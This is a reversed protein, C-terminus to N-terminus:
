FGVGLFLVKDTDCNSLVNSLTDLFVMRELANVPVYVCIFIFSYKEFQADVKLLRGKIVEDVQYSVPVFSKSFLIAVGSSTSNLHSLISLGDFEKCWDSSNLADSHTEQICLVDIRKQKIIEYIQYRKRIDRAGNVNLSAM